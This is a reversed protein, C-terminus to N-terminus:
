REIRERLGSARRTRTRIAEDLLGPNPTVLTFHQRARTIGTYILERTLVQVAQAPVVVAAHQFESGQVKHITMAYATEVHPLRSTLVSRVSDGAQFYVRLVGPRQPDPLTIGVDGNFVGLTHDNRTVMVPRGKYWESRCNLLGSAQLKKELAANIGAVGWDGDRVACLLRFDDFATLVAHAWAQHRM